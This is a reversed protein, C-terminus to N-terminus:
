RAAAAQLIERVVDSPVQEVRKFRLCSRGCDLDGLRDRFRDVTAPDVYLAVYHKQAALSCVGPYNLMGYRMGEAVDPAAAQVLGRVHVLLGRLPGEVSDIYVDPSADPRKM